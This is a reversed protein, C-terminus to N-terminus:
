YYIVLDIFYTINLLYNQEDMFFSAGALLNDMVGFLQNLSTSNDSIASITKNYINKYMLKLNPVSTVELQCNTGTFKYDCNCALFKDIVVCEGNNNCFSNTCNPINKILTFTQNIDQIFHLISSQLGIETRNSTSKSNDLNSVLSKLMSSRLILGDSTIGTLNFDNNQAINSIIETSILGSNIKIKIIFIIVTINTTNFYNFIDFCYCKVIYNYSSVGKPLTFNTIFENIPTIPTLFLEINNM